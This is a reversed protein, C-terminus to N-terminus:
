KRSFDKLFNVPHAVANRLILKEKKNFIPLILIGAIFAIFLTSDLLLSLLLSYHNSSVFMSVTYCVVGVALMSLTKTWPLNLPFYRQSFYFVLGFRVSFGIITALAAGYGKLPPILIFSFIIISAAAAIISWALYQTKGSYYVGFNCFATWIQIIYAIMILPVIKYADWFNSESMIRFFDFSFLCILLGCSITVINTLLFVTSNIEQVDPRRAIEFRKPGWVNFIPQAAFVWLVFGLKYGLSYIGVETLSSYAKLFYRDSFTLIFDGLNSIILPTGFIMMSVALKKSFRFGVAKFTYAILWTGIILSSILTSYLVGQISMREIVVFYINLSLQLALKITTIIVFFIPKEQARIFILPIEIFAQLFFCMFILRFYFLNESGGGLILRSLEGSSLFGISSTIFYLLILLISVTSIVSNRDKEDEYKYYFRYVATSLGVGAIISVVDITMTLLEVTGYDAPTLCRTYIPIMIFSVARNLIVGIAYIAAQKATNTIESM